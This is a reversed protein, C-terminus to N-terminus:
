EHADGRATALAIALLTHIVEGAHGLERRLREIERKAAALKDSDGQPIDDTM